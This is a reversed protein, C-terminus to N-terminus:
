SRLSVLYAIHTFRLISARERFWQQRPFDILIVYVSHTNTTKPLCYAVRLRWIAQGARSYKGVNNRLLHTKRHFNSFLLIHTKIKEVFKTRFM